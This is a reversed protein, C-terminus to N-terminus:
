TQTYLTYIPYTHINNHLSHTHTYQTYINTHVHTSALSPAATWQRMGRYLYLSSQTAQLSCPLTQGLIGTPLSGLKAPTNQLEHGKTFRPEPQELAQEETEEGRETFNLSLTARWGICGDQEAVSLDKAWLVVLGPEGRQAPSSRSAGSAIGAIMLRTCPPTLTCM